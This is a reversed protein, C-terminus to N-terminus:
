QKVAPPMVFNIPKALPARPTGGGGISEPGNNVVVQLSTFLKRMDKAWPTDLSRSTIPFGWAKQFEDKVRGGPGWETVIAFVDWATDDVLYAGYDQFAKALRRAPETELTMDDLNFDAPLALLAGMLCEKSPQGKTAYTRAAYGDASKAPWRYGKTTSDYFVNRAAYINVKLAHSIPRADPVLEGIRLTGGIASLKTAGHAGYYGDGYLDEDAFLFRSTGYGAAQCRAFPQTQKITRGDPMLVALGSNPTIGDWTESSVVFDDPIPARLLVGGDIQCRSKNRNWGANNRYVEVLPAAPTLVILDEDITMGAATAPQIKAPVYRANSGIPMNWISRQNFPRQLPNRAKGVDALPIEAHGGAAPEPALISSEEACAPGCVVAAGFALSLLTRKM